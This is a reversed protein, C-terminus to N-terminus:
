YLKGDAIISTGKGEASIINLEGGVNDMRNQMNILGNGNPKKSLDMGKGDDVIKMEYYDGNIIFSVLINQAQAYKIANNLAEKLILFLNRRLEPNIIREDAEETIDLEYHVSTTELFHLTYNRLYSLMSALNDHMPNVSWVIEGLQGTIERSAESLKNFSNPNIGPNEIKAVETLLSIRTLEAGINDHIDRAIRGRIRAVEQQRELISIKKKYNREIYFRVIAVIVIALFLITGARFPITKWFPPNINILVSAEKNSWHIGDLSARVKFTYTGPDLNTYTATRNEGDVSVWKADFGDLKYQYSIKDHNKFNLGTFSISFVNQNYKLNVEKAFTFTNEFLHLSDNPGVSHNFLKFDTLYVPPVVISDKLLEPHIITFGNMGGFYLIGNRDKYSANSNFENGQIGDMVDYNKIIVRQERNSQDVAFGGKPKLICSLGKNTAAWANGFNDVEVSNILNDPLGDKTTFNRFHETRKDFINVGNDTGIWIYNGYSSLGNISNSSISFKNKKDTKYIKIAKTETNFSALGNLTGMWFIGNEDLASTVIINSAINTTDKPAIRYKEYKLTSLNLKCMGEQFTGLWICDNKADYKITFVPGRSPIEPHQPNAYFQTVKSTIPDIKNFGDSVTSAWIFGKNDETINMIVNDSMSYKPNNPDYMFHKFIKTKNDFKNLGGTNTGVWLNNDKDMLFSNVASNSLSGPDDAHHSYTEFAKQQYFLGTVGGDYTGVWLNGQHDEYLHIINNGGLSQTNFESKKYVQFNNTSELYKNLGGDTGVWITGNHDELVQTVNSSSLSHIDGVKNIYIEKKGSKINIKELGEVTALWINGKKDLLFDEVSTNIIAYQGTTIHNYAWHEIIHGTKNMRFFGQFPTSFYIDGNADEFINNAQSVNIKRNKFVLYSYNIFQGSKKDLCSIGKENGIWLRGKSDHCLATIRGSSISSDNKDLHVYNTFTNKLRNYKSLGKDTGIWIDGNEDPALCFLHSSLLSNKSDDPLFIKFTYGDYLNLGQQTSFWLFGYKDQAINMVSTQSLGQETGLRKYYINDQASSYISLCMLFMYMLNSKILTNRLM